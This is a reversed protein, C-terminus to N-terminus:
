NRYQPATNTRAPNEAPTPHAPAARGMQKLYKATDLIQQDLDRPKVGAAAAAGRYAGFDGVYRDAIGAQWEPRIVPLEHGTLLRSAQSALDGIEVPTRAGTDFTATEGRLVRATAINLVDEVHAYARWVPHAARLRIPGGALIDAIICALAYSKLNNIYPGSLNFIRVIAAPFHRAAAQAGFIDEDARKLIGYTEAMYAAGSSPLVLGAAGNRAIFGHMVRTIEANVAVYNEQGAHGRTLFAFHFILAPPAPMTELAVYDRAAVSRGSRLLLARARATFATVRNPLDDGFVSELMELVAMGLWGGAGTVIIPGRGLGAAVHPLFALRTM